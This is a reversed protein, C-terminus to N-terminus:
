TGATWSQNSAIRAPPNKGNGVENVMGRELALVLPMTGVWEQANSLRGACCEAKHLASQARHDGYPPVEILAVNVAEGRASLERSLRAYKPVVAQCEPCEHRYLVVVWKGEKLTDGIDIYELLPFRKGIWKEPELLVIADDGVIGGADTLTDPTYSGMAYAAPVGVAVWVVLVCTARAFVQRFDAVAQKPRWRLLSAVIVADMTATIFPNLEWRGFCGCTAEGMLGKSLSVLTFAGFCALAAAWAPKALIGALLLLGVTGLWEAEVLCIVFWRASLVGTGPIPGTCCQHCKAAAAVLLVLAVVVRVVHWGRDSVAETKGNTDM